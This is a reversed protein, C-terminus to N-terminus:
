ECGLSPPVLRRVALRVSAPYRLMLHSLRRPNLRDLARFTVLSAPDLGRRKAIWVFDYLAQEPPTPAGKGPPAYIPSRVCVFVFRGLPTQRQRSRNHRRNTFCVVETPVQTVLNHRHLAHLGTVYAGNDLVPVLQEPSVVGPLGYVGAAYRVLVGKRALRALEVNLVHPSRGAVNVLESVRCLVKGHRNRQAELFRIWDLTKM